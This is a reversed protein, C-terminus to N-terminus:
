CQSGPLSQGFQKAELGLPSIPEASQKVRAAACHGWSRGQKGDPWHIKGTGRSLTHRGRQEARPEGGTGATGRTSGHLVWDM